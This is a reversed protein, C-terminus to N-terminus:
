IFTEYAICCIEVTQNKKIKDCFTVINDGLEICLTPDILFNLKILEYFENVDHNRYLQKSAIRITFLAKYSM